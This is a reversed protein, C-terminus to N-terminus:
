GKLRVLDNDVKESFIERSNSGMSYATHHNNIKLKEATEVLRRFPHIQDCKGKM